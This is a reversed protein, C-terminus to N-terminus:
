QQEGKLLWDISVGLEASIGILVPIGADTRNTEMNAIQPRSVGVRESLAAQTMGKAERADKLRDGFAEPIQGTGNCHACPRMRTTTSM